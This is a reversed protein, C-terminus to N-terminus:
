LVSRTSFTKTVTDDDSTVSVFLPSRYRSYGSKLLVSKNAQFLAEYSTAEVAANIVIVMDGERPTERPHQSGADLVDNAQTDALDRILSQALATYVIDGGFSHGVVLTRIPKGCDGM